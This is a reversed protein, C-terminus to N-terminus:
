IKEKKKIDNQFDPDSIFAAVLQQINDNNVAIESEQENAFQLYSHFQGSEFIEVEMYDGCSNEWELQISHNATPFVEPFFPLALILRQVDALFRQTFAKAGNENWDDGLTQIQKIAQIVTQAATKQDM